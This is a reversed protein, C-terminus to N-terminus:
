REEQPRTTKVASPREDDAMLVRRLRALKTTVNTASLGTVEAIEATTCGELALLLLQQGVLDFAKIRERVRALQDRREATVDPRSADTAASGALAEGDEHHQAGDNRRRRVARLVHTAGVNHAVRLVWTREACEGRFSQQARWLALLVEQELDRRGDRSAEYHACLRAVAAGHRTILGRFAETAEDIRSAEV